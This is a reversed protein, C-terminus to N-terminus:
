SAYTLRVGPIFAQVAGTLANCKLSNCMHCLPQINTPDNSGGKSLPIIHDITLNETSGCRMCRHNCRQLVAQWAAESLHGGAERERARRRAKALKAAHPHRLRYAARKRRLCPRCKRSKPLESRLFPLSCLKCRIIQCHHWLRLKAARDEREPLTSARYREYNKQIRARRRREREEAGLRSLTGPRGSPLYPACGPHRSEYLVRAHLRSQERKARLREPDNKIREWQTPKSM